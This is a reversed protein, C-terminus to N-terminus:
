CLLPARYIRELHWKFHPARAENWWDTKTTTLFERAFRALDPVDDIHPSIEITGGESVGVWGHEFLSDCGLLCALMAVNDFDTRETESCFRRKKIHAAVLQSRLLRRGCLACPAVQRGGMLHNKLKEQEKRVARLAFMDTDGTHSSTGTRKRPLPESATELELELQGDHHHGFYELLRNAHKDVRAFGQVVATNRELLKKIEYMSIDHGSLNSLAYMCEWTDGVPQGNADLHKMPDRAEATKGQIGWLHLALPRNRFTRTVTGSLYIRKSEVFLVLDGPAMNSWKPVNAEVTKGEPIKGPLVGWMATSDTPSDKKFWNLDGPELLDAIEDIEVQKLVTNKYNLDVQEGARGARGAPQM